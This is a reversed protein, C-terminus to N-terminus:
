PQTRKVVIQVGTVDAAEVRLRVDQSADFRYTTTVGGATETMFAAGARGGGSFTSSQIPGAIGSIPANVIGPQPDSKTIAPAAARVLYTGAVVGDVRFQGDSSTRIRGPGNFMPVGEVPEAVLMVSANEVPRGAEDVVVGRVSFAPVEQMAIEIGNLTAARGISVPQAASADVTGPYFTAALTTPSPDTRAMPPASRPNAQIFYEGAALSHIRFEGLDNTVVMPGAMVLRGAAAGTMRRFVAVRSEVMPEGKPTLVRGTIIAGRELRLVSSAPAADAQITVIQPPVTPNQGAFGVKQAMLRYPGPALGEFRFMGDPGTTAERAQPVQGPAPRTVPLLTVRADSIPANTDAEVVRGTIAGAGAASQAAIAAALGVVLSCALLVHTRWPKM